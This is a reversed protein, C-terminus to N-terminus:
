PTRDLGQLLWIYKRSYKPPAVVLDRHSALFDRPTTIERDREVCPRLWSTALDRPRSAVLICISLEFLNPKRQAHTFYWVEDSGSPTYILGGYDGWEKMIKTEMACAHFVVSRIMNKKKQDPVNPMIQFIISLLYISCEVYVKWKDHEHIEYYCKWLLMM